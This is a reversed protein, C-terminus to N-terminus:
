QALSKGFFFSTYPGGPVSSMTEAPAMAGNCCLRDFQNRQFENTRKKFDRPFQSLASQPFRVQVMRSGELADDFLRVTPNEAGRHQEWTGFWRLLRVIPFPKFTSFLVLSSWGSSGHHLIQSSLLHTEELRTM